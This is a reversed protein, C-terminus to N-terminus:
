IAHDVRSGRPVQYEGHKLTAAPIGVMQRQTLDHARPSDALREVHLREDAAVRVRAIEPVAMLRDGTSRDVVPARVIEVPDQLEKRVGDASHGCIRVLANPM